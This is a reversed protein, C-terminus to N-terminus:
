LRPHFAQTLSHWVGPEGRILHILGACRSVKPHKVRCISSEWPIPAKCCVHCCLKGLTPAKCCVHCLKGPNLRREVFMAVSSEGQLWCPLQAKENCCVHCCLKRRTVYMADSSERPLRRAVSMEVFKRRAVFM